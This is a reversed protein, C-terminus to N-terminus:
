SLTSIINFISTELLIVPSFISLTFCDEIFNISFKYLLNGPIFIPTTCNLSSAFINTFGVFSECCTICAICFIDALPSVAIDFPISFVISDYLSSM